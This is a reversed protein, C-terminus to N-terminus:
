GRKRRVLQPTTRLSRRIMTSTNPERPRSPMPPSADLFDEDRFLPPAPPPLKKQEQRRRVSDLTRKVTAHRDPRKRIKAFHMQGVQDIHRRLSDFRMSGELHRIYAALTWPNAPSSCLGMDDCWAVFAQWSKQKAPTTM